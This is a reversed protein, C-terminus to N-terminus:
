CTWHSIEERARRMNRIGPIEIGVTGAYDLELLQAMFSRLQGRTLVGDFLPVHSHREGNTDDIQVYGLHKGAASISEVPNEGSLLSHGTDVLVFLNPHSTERVFQLTEKDNGLFTGPLPEICCRIGERQSAESLFFLFDSFAATKVDSSPPVTYLASAGLKRMKQLQEQISRKREFDLNLARNPAKFWDKFRLAVCGVKLGHLDSGQISPSFSLGDEGTERFSLDVYQFGVSRLERFLARLSAPGAGYEKAMFACASANLTRNCAQAQPQTSIIKQIVASKHLAGGWIYSLLGAAGLKLVQRRSKIPVQLLHTM